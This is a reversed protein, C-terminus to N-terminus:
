ARTDVYIEWKIINNVQFTRNNVEKLISNCCDVIEQHAVKRLLINNLDKDADLLTPIDQKITKRPWPELGHEALDEPNNLDGSYYQWKLGKMKNYDSVLKKVCLNHHALIKLYKSHLKPIRTLERSPETLDMESDNSWEALLTEISVPPLM